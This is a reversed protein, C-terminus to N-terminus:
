NSYNILVGILMKVGPVGLCSSQIYHASLQMFVDKWRCEYIFRHQLIGLVTAM